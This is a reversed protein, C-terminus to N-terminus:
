RTMAVRKRTKGLRKRAKGTQRTEGPEDMASVQKTEDTKKDITM